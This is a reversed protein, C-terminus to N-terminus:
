EVMLVLNDRHIVEDTYKYGLIGEIEKTNLGKIESLEKSSYNVLGRAFEEGDPAILSILDGARFNEKVGVVGKPM